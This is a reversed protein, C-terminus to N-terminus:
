SPEYTSHGDDWYSDFIHSYVADCKERYLNLGPIKTSAASKYNCTPDHSYSSLTRSVSLHVCDTAVRPLSAQVQM